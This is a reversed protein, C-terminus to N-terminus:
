SRDGGGTITTTYTTKTTITTPTTKEGFARSTASEKQEEGFETARIHNEM